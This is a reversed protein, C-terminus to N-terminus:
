EGRLVMNIAQRVNEVPWIEIGKVDKVAEYNSKPIIIKQLRIKQM